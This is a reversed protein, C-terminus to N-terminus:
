NINNEVDAKAVAKGNLNVAVATAIGVQNIIGINAGKISLKQNQKQKLDLDIGVKGGVVSSAKSVVELHNLDSIVM